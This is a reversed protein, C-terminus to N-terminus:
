IVYNDLVSLGNIKRNPQILGLMKPVLSYKYEGYNKVFMGQQTALQIQLELEALNLQTGKEAMKLKTNIKTQGKEKIGKHVVGKREQGLEKSGSNRKQVAVDEM